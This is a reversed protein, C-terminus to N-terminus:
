IEVSDRGASDPHERCSWQSHAFTPRGFQEAIILGLRHQDPNPHPGCHEFLDSREYMRSCVRGRIRGDDPNEAKGNQQSTAYERNRRAPPHAKGGHALFVASAGTRPAATLLVSASRSAACSDRHTFRQTETQLVPRVPFSFLDSANELDIKPPDLIGPPIKNSPNEVRKMGRLNCM